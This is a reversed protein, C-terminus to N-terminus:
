AGRLRQFLGSLEADLIAPDFGARVSFYGADIRRLAYLDSGPPNLGPDTSVAAEIGAQALIAAGRSMAPRRPYALWRSTPDLMARIRDTSWRVESAVEDDSLEDLFAHTRTHSGFTMGSGLMERAEEWSMMLRGQDEPTCGTCERLMQIARVREARPAENLLRVIRGAARRPDIKYDTGLAARVRPELWDESIGNSGMRLVAEVVEDWWLREKRDLSDTVLFFTAPLGYKRLLPWAHEYNDRYGDDFTITLAKPPLTHAKLREVAEPFPLVHYHRDLHGIQSEFEDRPMVMGQHAYMRSEHLPLVRHYTLIGLGPPTVRRRFIPLGLATLSRSLLAKANQRPSFRLREWSRDHTELYLNAYTRIMADMRHDTEVFRRATDGLEHRREPDEFLTRIAAAMAEPNAPPTLVGTGGDRVLDANGTVNTAVVAVGMAMAELITNSMGEFTSSNVYVDTAALLRAVDKRVGTWVVQDTVGLSDALTVLDAYLEPRSAGGVVLLRANPRAEHVRAFARLLTAHDKVLRLGGITTVVEHEPGLGFERRVPTGDSKPDFQTLDVGNPIFQIREPAIGWVEELERELGRAVAIFRTVLPALRRKIWLRRASPALDDHGHEGHIVVPVGALRAGLVAYLYTQWNHSHVIDIGEDRFTNALTGILSYNHRTPRNLAVVRVRPDLVAKTVDTQFRLCCISPEIEAPMGNSIKIVGYEMGALLLTDVVHMVRVPRQPRGSTTASPLNESFHHSDGM